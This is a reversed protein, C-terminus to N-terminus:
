IRLQSIMFDPLSSLKLASHSVMLLYSITYSVYIHSVIEILMVGSLDIADSEEIEIFRCM